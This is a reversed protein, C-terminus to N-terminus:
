GYLRAWWALVIAPPYAMSPIWMFPPLDGLGIPARAQFYPTLAVLWFVMTSGGVFSLAVLAWTMGARVGFWALLLEMFGTAVLLGAVVHFVANRVDPTRTGDVDM